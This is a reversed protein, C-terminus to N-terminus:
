GLRFAVDITDSDCSATPDRATSSGTCTRFRDARSGPSRRDARLTWAVPRTPFAMLKL